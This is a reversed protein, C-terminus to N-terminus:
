GSTRMKVALCTTSMIGAHARSDGEVWIHLLQETIGHLAAPLTELFGQILGYAATKCM